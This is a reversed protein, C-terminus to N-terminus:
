KLKIGLLELQQAASLKCTEKEAANNEKCAKEYFHYNLGSLMVLLEYLEQKEKDTVNKFIGNDTANEAVVDRLGVNQEFPIIPKETQGYYIHSNLGVFSVYALAWDNPYGKAAAETEYEKFIKLILEKLEAKDEASIEVADLYEQLTLRTGTSKFQVAPYRRYEPVVPPTSPRTYGSKSAGSGPKYEKTYKEMSSQWISNNLTTNIFNSYGPSSYFNPLQAFSQESFSLIMIAALGVSCLKITKMQKTKFALSTRPFCHCFYWSPDPVVMAWFSPSLSKRYGQSAPTNRSDIPRVSLTGIL